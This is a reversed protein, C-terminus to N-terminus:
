PLFGRERLEQVNDPASQWVREAAYRFVAIGALEPPAALVAVRDEEDDDLQRNLKAVAEEVSDSVIRAPGSSNDFKLHSFSATRALLFRVMEEDDSDAFFNRFEPQVSDPTIISPRTITVDGRIISVTNGPRSAGCVLFYPLVSEGFTFLSYHVPRAIEVAEWAAQFRREREFDHFHMLDNVAESSMAEVNHGIPV